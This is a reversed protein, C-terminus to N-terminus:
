PDILTFAMVDGVIRYHVIKDIPDIDRLYVVVMTPEKPSCTGLEVWTDQYQAQNIEKEFCVDFKKESTNHVAAHYSVQRSVTAFVRPDLQETPIYTAISVKTETSAAAFFNWSMIPNSEVQTWAAGPNVVSAPRRTWSLWHSRECFGVGAIERWKEKWEGETIKWETGEPNGIILRRATNDCGPGVFVSYRPNGSSPQPPLNTPVNGYGPVPNPLSPTDALMKTAFTAGLVVFETVLAMVLAKRLRM